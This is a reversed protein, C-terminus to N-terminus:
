KRFSSLANLGARRHALRREFNTDGAAGYVAFAVEGEFSFHVGSDGKLVRSSRQQFRNRM